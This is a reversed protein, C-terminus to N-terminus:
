VQKRRVVVEVSIYHTPQDAFAAGALDVLGPMRRKVCREGDLYIRRAVVGVNCTEQRFYLRECLYPMRVDDGDVMEALVLSVGEKHHVEGLPQRFAKRKRLAAPKHRLNRGCEVLKM